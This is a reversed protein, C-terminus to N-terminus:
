GRRTGPFLVDVGGFRCRESRLKSGPQYVSGGQGEKIKLVQSQSDYMVAAQPFSSVVIGGGTRRFYEVLAGLSGVIAVREPASPTFTSVPESSPVLRVRDIEQTRSTAGHNITTMASESEPGM